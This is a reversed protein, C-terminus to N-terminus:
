SEFYLSLHGYDNEYNEINRKRCQMDNASRRGLKIWSKVYPLPNFQRQPPGIIKVFLLASLREIKLKNRNDTLIDNMTSFARECEATSVILTDSAKLMPEMSKPVNQGLGQKFERFGNIIATESRLKFYKCVNRVSDEGFLIDFEAPWNEPCLVQLDNVLQSYAAENASADRDGTRSSTTFLRASLNDALSQYFQSANILPVSLRNGQTIAVGKYSSNETTEKAAEEAFKGPKDKRALFVSILIKLKKHAQVFTIQRSQLELSLTSLEQLADCMLSLNLVFNQSTLYSLMGSYKSRERTDRSTDVSARRIHEALAPYSKIVASAARYSSAVWRTDLMRGIKQLEVEVTEAAQQLEICNKPSSSYLSYLKDMFVKFNNVGAVSTVSDGVALELKHNACHWFIISPFLEKLKKTVGSIRGTMVSAGDSAFCILHEKLYDMDMGHKNLCTLLSDVITQSDAKELEVLDLYLSSPKGNLFVRLCVVLTPRVSKTTAEDVMIGIKESSMKVANVIKKRMENAIHDCIEAATVRSHLVSGMDVSNLQQLDILHPFDTFPRERKMLLYATRFVRGTTEYEQETGKNTLNPLIDDVRESIVKESSTHVKSDRHEKLKKRLSKLRTPRSDGYPQVKVNCWQESFSMGQLLLGPALSANKCTSCGLSGNRGVLWPYKNVFDTAQKETWCAPWKNEIASQDDNGILADENEAQSEGIEGAESQTPRPM